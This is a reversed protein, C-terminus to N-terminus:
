KATLRKTNEGSIEPEVWQGNANSRIVFRGVPTDGSRAEVRFGIDNGSVIIPIPLPVRPLGQVAQAHVWVGTAVLSAVWILSLGIWKRWSMNVEM